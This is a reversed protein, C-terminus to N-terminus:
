TIAQMLHFTLSVMGASYAAAAVDDAMIGWGGHLRELRNAPWPKIIDLVRFCVWGVPVLWWWTAPAVDVGLSELPLFVLPVTAIEDFVVSSPDADGILRAARNCIAVGVLLVAIVLLWRIAPHDPLATLLWWTWALGWLSGVTGPAVPSRGAGLGTALWLM